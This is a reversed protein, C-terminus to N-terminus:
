GAVHLSCHALSCGPDAQADHAIRHGAMQLALAAQRQGNIVPRGLFGGFPRALEVVLGHRGRGLRRLTGIEDKGADAIVIVQAGDCEARVARKSSHCFARHQDIM